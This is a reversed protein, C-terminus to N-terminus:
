LMRKLLFQLGIFLIVPVITVLTAGAMLVSWESRSLQELLSLAVPITQFTDTRLYYIPSIFDEWYFLFSLMAVALTTPRALPLAVRGWSDLVGAGDLQAADYIARPLRHFARYYMLIFFPSTGMFAPMILALPTNIVGTHAYILFRPLWLAVSPVMLLVLSLLVWRRQSAKPMQAIAFGAWSATVITLPIAVVVVLVSNLGYRVLPVLELVRAFNELSLGDPVLTLRRPLPTGWPHLAATVMWLLPLLCLIAAIWRLAGRTADSFWHKTM